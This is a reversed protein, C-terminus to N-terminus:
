DEEPHERIYKHKHNHSCFTKDKYRYVIYSKPVEVKGCVACNIIQKGDSPPINYIIDVTTPTSNTNYRSAM